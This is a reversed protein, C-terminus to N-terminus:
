PVLMLWVVGAVSVMVLVLLPAWRVAFRRVSVALGQRLLQKRTPVRTHSIHFGSRYIKSDPGAERLTYKM